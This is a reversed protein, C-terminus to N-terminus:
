VIKGKGNVHEIAEKLTQSEAKLEYCASAGISM